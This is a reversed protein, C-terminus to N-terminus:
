KQPQVTVTIMDISPWDRPHQKIRPTHDHNVLEVLIRYTGPPLDRLVFEAADPMAFSKVMLFRAPRAGVQRSYDAVYVHVHGSNAEQPVLGYKTPPRTETGPTTAKGYAFDFATTEIRMPIDNGAIVAGDAPSVIRVQPTPRDPTGRGLATPGSKESQAHAGGYALVVSLAAASALVKVVNM